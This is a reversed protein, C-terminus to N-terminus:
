LGPLFYLWLCFEDDDMRGVTKGGIERKLIEKLFIDEKSQLIIVFRERWLM